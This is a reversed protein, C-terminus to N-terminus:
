ILVFWVNFTLESDTETDKINPRFDITLQGKIFFIYINTEMDSSMKQVSTIVMIKEAM